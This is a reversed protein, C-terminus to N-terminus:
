KTNKFDVEFGAPFRKSLEYEPTGVMLTERPIVREWVKLDDSLQEIAPALADFKADLEEYRKAIQEPTAFNLQSLRVMLGAYEKSLAAYRGHLTKWRQVLERARPDDRFARSNALWVMDVASLSFEKVNADIPTEKM